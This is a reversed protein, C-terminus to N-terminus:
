RCLETRSLQVLESTSGQAPRFDQLALVTLLRVRYRGHLPALDDVRPVALVATRFPLSALLGVLPETLYGPLNSLLVDCPLTPLLVLADGHLVRAHPVRSGLATTLNPDYEIVTLSRCAPVHEAVTGIGAGVEVVDDTPRIGAAEILLRLKAPNRLFHQDLAPNVQVGLEDDTSSINDHETMRTRSRWDYSNPPTAPLPLCAPRA